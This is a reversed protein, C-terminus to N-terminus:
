RWPHQHDPNAAGEYHVSEELSAHDQQQHVFGKTVRGCQCVTDDMADRPFEHVFRCVCARMREAIRQRVIDADVTASADLPLEQAILLDAFSQADEFTYRSHNLYLAIVDVGSHASWIEVRYGRHTKDIRCSAPAATGDDFAWANWEGLGGPWWKLRTM